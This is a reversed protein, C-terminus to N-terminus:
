EFPDIRGRLSFWAYSLLLILTGSAFSVLLFTGSVDGRGAAVSGVLLWLMLVGFGIAHARKLSANSM